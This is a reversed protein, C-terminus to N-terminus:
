KKETIVGYWSDRLFPSENVSAQDNNLTFADGFVSVINYPKEISFSYAFSSNLGPQKQILLEHSQSKNSGKKPLRYTLTITGSQGGELLLWHAFTTKGSEVGITTGSTNHISQSDEISEVLSDKEGKKQLSEREFPPKSFGEASILEAGKPVFVKIFSVDRFAYNPELPNTRTIRLTNVVSGDTKANSQLTISQKIDTNVKTGGLNSVNVHLYDSPSDQINGAWGYKELIQEVAPDRSYLLLEKEALL